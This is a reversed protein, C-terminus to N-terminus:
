FKLINIIIRSILNGAFQRLCKFFSSTMLIQCLNLRIYFFSRTSTQCIDWSRGTQWNALRSWVSVSTRKLSHNFSVLKSFLANYSLSKCKLWKFSVPWSPCLFTVIQRFDTHIYAGTIATYPERLLLNEGGDFHAIGPRKKGHGRHTESHIHKFFSSFALFSFASISSSLPLYKFTKFSVCLASLNSHSSCNDSM